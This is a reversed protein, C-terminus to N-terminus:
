EIPSDLAVIKEELQDDMYGSNLAEKMMKLAEVRMLAQADEPLISMFMAITKPDASLVTAITDEKRVPSRERVIQALVPMYFKREIEKHVAEAAEISALASEDDPFAQKLVREVNAKWVNFKPSFRKEAKLGEIEDILPALRFWNPNSESTLLKSFM